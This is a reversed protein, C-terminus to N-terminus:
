SVPGSSPMALPASWNRSETRNWILYPASTILTQAVPPTSESRWATAARESVKRLASRM